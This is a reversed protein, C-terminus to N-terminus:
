RAPPSSANSSPRMPTSWITATRRRRPGLLRGSSRGVPQLSGLAQGQRSPARWRSGTPVTASRRRVTTAVLLWERQTDDVVHATLDLSPAYFRYAGPGIARHLATPMTDILPPLAFRDFRGAADRQPVRYRFWRAYRAPGESWADTWFRDFYDRAAAVGAPDIGYTRRTGENRVHVLGAEKLVKLHQSVAPRSVPVDRAIDM